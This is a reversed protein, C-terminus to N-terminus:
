KLDDGKGQKELLNWTHVSSLELWDCKKNIIKHQRDNWCCEAFDDDHGQVQHHFGVFAAMAPLFVAHGQLMLVRYLNKWPLPWCVYCSLNMMETLDLVLQSSVSVCKLLLLLCSYKALPRTVEHTAVTIQQLASMAKGTMPQIIYLGHSHLHFPSFAAPFVIFFSCMSQRM